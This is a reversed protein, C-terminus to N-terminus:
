DAHYGLHIRDSHDGQSNGTNFEAFPSDVEDPRLPAPLRNLSALLTRAAPNDAAVPHGDVHTLDVARGAGHSSSASKRASGEQHGARLLGIHIAHHEALRNLLESIRPDIHGDALDWRAHFVMKVNPNDLLKVTHPSLGPALTERYQEAAHLVADVDGTSPLYTALAQRLQDPQDAGLDCLYQYAGRIADPPNYVDANGDNDGDLSFDAWVDGAAGGVGLQMPGAEGDDTTTGPRRADGHRGHDSAVSGIGAVIRWSVGPCQQNWQRYWGLYNEPIFVRALHSPVDQGGAPWAAPPTAHAATATVGVTIVPIALAAALLANRTRSIM